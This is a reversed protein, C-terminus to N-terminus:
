KFDFIDSSAFIFMKSSFKLYDKFALKEVRNYYSEYM